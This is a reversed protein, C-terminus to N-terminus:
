ARRPSSASPGAAREYLERYQQAMRRVSFRARQARGRAVLDRRLAPETLLRTLANAVSEVSRPDVLLAADGAVEPMSSTDSTVVPVDCAMAELIPLGFGEFLSPYAFVTAASLLARMEDEPVYGTWVVREDKQTDEDDIGWGAAGIVVLQTRARIDQPMARFAQLLRRHNKRPERTGIALVYDGTIGHAAKVEAIRTPDAERCMTTGLLITHVKAPDIRPGLRALVDRRTAESDAGIAAAERAAITLGTRHFYRGWRTLGEPYRWWVLDHVTLVLRGSRVAPVVNPSTAHVVDQPGIWREIYPQRLTHWTLYRFQPKFAPVQVFRVSPPLTALPTPLDGIPRVSYLTYATTQDIDALERVLHVIVRGQGGGGPVPGFLDDVGIAVRLRRM